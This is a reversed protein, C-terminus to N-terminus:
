GALNYLKTLVFDSYCGSHIKIIGPIREDYMGIIYQKTYMPKQCHPCIEGAARHYFIAKADNEKMLRMMRDLIKGVM